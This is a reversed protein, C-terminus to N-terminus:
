AAGNGGGREGWGDVGGVDAGAEEQALLWSDLAERRIRRLRGVRFSPIAGDAILRAMQRVSMDVYRAANEPSFAGPSAVPSAEARKRRPAVRASSSVVRDETKSSTM